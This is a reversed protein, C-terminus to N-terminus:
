PAIEWKIHEIIHLGFMAHCFEVPLRVCDPGAHDERARRSRQSITVSGHAEITIYKREVAPASTDCRKRRQPTGGPRARCSAACRPYPADKLINHVFTLPEARDHPPDACYQELQQRQLDLVGGHLGRVVHTPARPMGASWLGSQRRPQVARHTPPLRERQRRGTMSRTGSTGGSVILTRARVLVQQPPFQVHGGFVKGLVATKHLLNRLSHAEGVRIVKRPPRLGHMANRRARQQTKSAHSHPRGAIAEVGTGDKHPSHLQYRTAPFANSTQNGWGALASGAAM